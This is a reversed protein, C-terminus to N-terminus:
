IQKEQSKNNQYLFNRGGCFVIGNHALYWPPVLMHIHFEISGM